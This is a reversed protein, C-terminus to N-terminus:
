TLFYLSFFSIFLGLAFGAYVEVPTHANLYLRATLISGAVLVIAILAWMLNHEPYLLMIALLFGVMAGAGSGHVSIKFFLTIVTLFAVLLSAGIFIALILDNIEIKSHFLYTTLGYFITIFSFPLVREARNELKVSSITMTTRLGLISLAPIIFTTIFVLLIILLAIKGSVPQLSEPIFYLLILLLLTPLLLPHM